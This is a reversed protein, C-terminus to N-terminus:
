KHNNIVRNYYRERMMRFNREAIQEKTPKARFLSAIWRLLPRTLRTM